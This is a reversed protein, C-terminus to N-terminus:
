PALKVENPPEGGSLITKITELTTDLIREVAEWTNYAIHPTLIVNPHQALRLALLAKRLEESSLSDSRSLSLWDATLAREGEVVDLAAGSLIGEELAELLAETEVLGGRSTNVLIAGRKMRRINNRNILHRTRENLPLHLTIVDSSSLLTDLDVYEVQYKSVLEENVVVDYALVKMDFARALKAVRGGIRGTGIVGIIKGALERGRVQAADLLHGPSRNAAAFKRMLALVLLITYEAVTASGYDPVNYVRVRRAACARLDIHDFGTSRTIIAKLNPLEDLVAGDVRSHIFVSVVESDRFRKASEKTLPEKSLAVEHGSLATKIRNEEWGEVEFFAIKVM